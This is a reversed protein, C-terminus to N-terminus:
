TLFTFGFFLPPPPDGFENRLYSTWFIVWFRLFRAENSVVSVTGTQGCIKCYIGSSYVYFFFFVPFKLKYKFLALLLVPTM